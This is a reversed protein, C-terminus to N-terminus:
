AVIATTSESVNNTIIVGGYISQYLNAVDRIFFQMIKGTNTILTHEM